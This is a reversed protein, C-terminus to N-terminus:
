DDFKVFYNPDSMIAIEDAAEEATMDGYKNTTAWEETIRAGGACFFSMHLEEVPTLKRKWKKEIIAKGRTYMYNYVFDRYPTRAVRGYMAAQAPNDKVSKLIACALDRFNTCGEIAKDYIMQYSADLVDEKDRFYRYFTTRGIHSEKILMTVTVNHYGYKEVLRSFVDIVHNKTENSNM